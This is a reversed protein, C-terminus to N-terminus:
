HVRLLGILDILVVAFARRLPNKSIEFSKILLPRAEEFGDLSIYLSVRLDLSTSVLIDYTRLGREKDAVQELIALSEGPCPSPNQLLLIAFLFDSDVSAKTARPKAITETALEALRRADDFAM